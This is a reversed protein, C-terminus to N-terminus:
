GDKQWLLMMQHTSNMSEYNNEILYRIDRNIISKSKEVLNCLYDEDVEGILVLDIVETDVGNVMDGSLYVAKLDGLKKTIHEVIYDLGTFKRVMSNIDSYLPHERNVQFIKKKGDQRSTIMNADELRNLEMRIGNTSENFEAELGRLYAVNDPNLFFKLLLKIRTRSTILTDLM